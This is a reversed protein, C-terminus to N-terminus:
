KVMGKKLRGFFFQKKEAVALIPNKTEININKKQKGEVIWEHGNKFCQQHQQQQEGDCINRDSIESIEEEEEFMKMM